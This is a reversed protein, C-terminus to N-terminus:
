SVKRCISEAHPGFPGSGAPTSFCSPERHDPNERAWVGTAYDSTGAITTNQFDGAKEWVLDALLIATM